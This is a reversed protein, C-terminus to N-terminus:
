ILARVQAKVISALVDQLVALSVTGLSSGVADKARRWITDNRANDLFEHGAWTLRKPEWDTNDSFPSEEAVILGAEHMILVHYSVLAGSCGDITLDIAEAPDNQANELCLLITRVLDFDRKM